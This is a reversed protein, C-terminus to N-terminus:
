NLKYSIQLVKIMKLSDGSHGILKMGAETKIDPEVAKLDTAGAKKTTLIDTMMPVYAKWFFTDTRGKQEFSFLKQVWPLGSLQYIGPVKEQDTFDGAFYYSDYSQNNHHIVAPFTLPINNNALKKVGDESLALEFNAQVEEQDNAEVVDFWYNYQISQNLEYEDLGKETLKFMIHDSSLDKKTLVIVKDDENVFVLGNGKFSYPEDYQKEYNQKLWVPVETNSLDNFYRGMWGSWKVHLMSYFAERVHQKTPSGFTNFEAILTQNNEILSANLSHVEESTMGGYLLKSRNGELNRGVYEDEYVGYGDAIYLVDYASLDEPLNRVKFEPPQDTPVFGIYDEKPDYAENGEKKLKLHNLLWVLGKHERYSQDPVTKDVILVQLEKSPKLQWLWLPTTLILFLLLIATMIIVNKKTMQYVKESWKEGDKKVL